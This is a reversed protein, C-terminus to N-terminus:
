QQEEKNYFRSNKAKKERKKEPFFKDKLHCGAVFIIIFSAVMIFTAALLLLLLKIIEPM